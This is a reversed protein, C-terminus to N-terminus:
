ECQRRPGGGYPQYTNDEPRYSRYRAFCSQAHEWSGYSTGGPEAAAQEIAPEAIEATDEPFSDEEVPPPSIDDVSAVNTSASPQSFPSQCQKRGGSYPTYSNDRPRYSRYRSSCWELHADSLLPEDTAQVATEEAPAISGTVTEDLRQPELGAVAEEESTAVSDDQASGQRPMARATAIQEPAPARSPLREFDNKAVEVRVPHNTWLDTTNTLQKKDDGATFFVTAAVLGGVFTMVSFSLGGLIALVVKM